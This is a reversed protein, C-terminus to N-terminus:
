ARPRRTIPDLLDMLRLDGQPGDTHPALRPADRDERDRFARLEDIAGTRLIRTEILHRADPNTRLVQRLQEAARPAGMDREIAVILALLRRVDAEAQGPTHFAAKLAHAVRRAGDESLDVPEEEGAELAALTVRELM